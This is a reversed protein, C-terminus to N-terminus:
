EEGTGLLKKVIGTLKYMDVPKNLLGDIENIFYNMENPVSYGTLFVFAGKYGIAQLKEFLRIGSMRPMNIDSIVLQYQQKSIKQLAELGNAAGDCEYGSIRLMETVTELIQEEDDVVLIRKHALNQKKLASAKLDIIKSNLYDQKQISTIEALNDVLEAIRKIALESNNLYEKKIRGMKLLSIYNSLAQLPQSFEHSVAGALEQVTALMEAKRKNEQVTREETLDRSIGAFAIIKDNENKIASTSIATYFIHGQRTICRIDGNWDEPNQINFLRGTVKEPTDAPLLVRFNKGLIQEEQYKFASCFADNVYIINGQLDVITVMDHISHLAKAYMKRAEDIAKKNTINEKVAIFHTVEGKHNKVPAIHAFEWYLTGDKKKNHFEGRWTEGSTITKWLEKYGEPPIEGSKLIRPNQGIAEEYAYGTVECFRPNVYEINGKIDTIVISTPSQEIIHSFKRLSEEKSLLNTKAEALKLYAEELTQPDAPSNENASPPTIKDWKSLIYFLVVASGAILLASFYNPAQKLFSNLFLATIFISVFFFAGPILGKISKM